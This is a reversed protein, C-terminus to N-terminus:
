QPLALVSMRFSMGKGIAAFSVVSRLALHDFQSKTCMSSSSLMFNKM